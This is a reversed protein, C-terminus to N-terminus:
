TKGTDLSICEPVLTLMVVEHPTRIRPIFTTDGVGRTVLLRNEYLGHTYRPFLGQGPSYVGRGFLTWQGGHAHGSITLDLSLPRLYKPYYEPHHSLLLKFGSLHSFDELFALNPCHTTQFRQSPIGGIYIGQWLVYSDSLITVGLDTIERTITDPLCSDHNGTSYFVPCVPALARLLAMGRAVQLAHRPPTEMLDGPILVADPSLSLVTDAVRSPDGRHLDGVIALRLPANGMYPVSVHTVSLRPM